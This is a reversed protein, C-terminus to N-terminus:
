KEHARLAHDSLLHWLSHVMAAAVDEIPAQTLWRPNGYIRWYQDPSMTEVDSSAVPILAYLAHALYPLDATQAGTRTETPDSILWLKAAALKDRNLAAHDPQTM